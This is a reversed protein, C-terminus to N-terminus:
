SEGLKKLLNAHRELLEIYKDKWDNRDNRNNEAKSLTAPLVVMSRTNIEEMYEPFVGSFDYRIADGISRITRPKLKAQNFWNYVSRRNVHTLRAIDTISHGNSRVIKEILQGHHKTNM